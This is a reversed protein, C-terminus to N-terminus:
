SRGEPGEVSTRVATAQWVQAARWAPVEFDDAHFGSGVTRQTLWPLASLGGPQLPLDGNGARDCRAALELYQKPTMM